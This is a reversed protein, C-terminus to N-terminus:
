AGLEVPDTVGGFVSFYVPDANALRWVRGKGKTKGCMAVMVRRSYEGQKGISVRRPPNFTNGGDDSWSVDMIPNTEIPVQGGAMGQGTGIDFHASPFLLNSPFSHQPASEVVGVIQEGDESFVADNVFYLKDGYADGVIWGDFAKASQSARWRPLGYSHREHWKQTTLNFQFTWDPSSLSWIAHPGHSFVAAELTAKDGVREILRSLFPPSIRVPTNGNLIYVNNDDAVWILENTWGNEYGAVAYPGALGRPIVPGASFPFGEPNGTNQYFQISNQGMLALRDGIFVGRLLGDPRADATTFDLANVTVDNIGSAFCRGDRITWFFFGAGYTVSNTQPLNEPNLETVSTLTLQYDGSECTLVVDPTPAKNNRSIFVKDTGPVIGEIEPAGGDLITISYGGDASVIYIAKQGFVGFLGGNVELLGRCPGHGTALARLLGPVRRRLWSWRAGEQLKEAYMNILRGASEHPREGPATEIPFIIDAM